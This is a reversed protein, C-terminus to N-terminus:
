GNKIVEVREGCGCSYVVVKDDENVIKDVRKGCKCVYGRLKAPNGYYLGHPIVTKTVVSGAGVM